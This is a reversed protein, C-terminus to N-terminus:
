ADLAEGLGSLARNSGDLEIRPLHDRAREIEPSLPHRTISHPVSVHELIPRAILGSLDATHAGGASERLARRHVNSFSRSTLRV